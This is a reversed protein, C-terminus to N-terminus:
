EKDTEQSCESIISEVEQFVEDLTYTPAGALRSAEAAELRAQLRNFEDQAEIDSQGSLEKFAQLHKIVLREGIEMVTKTDAYENHEPEDYGAHPLSEQHIADYKIDNM